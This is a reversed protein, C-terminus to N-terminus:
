WERFIWLMGALTALLIFALLFIEWDAAESLFQEMRAIRRRRAEARAARGREGIGTGWMAKDYFCFLGVDLFISVAVNLNEASVLLTM